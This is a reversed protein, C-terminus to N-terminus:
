LGLSQLRSGGSGTVLPLFVGQYSTTIKARYRRLTKYVVPTFHQWVTKRLLGLSFAFLSVQSNFLISRNLISIFVSSAQALINHSHRPKPRFHGIGRLRSNPCFFFFRTSSFVINKLSSIIEICISVNFPRRYKGLSRRLM